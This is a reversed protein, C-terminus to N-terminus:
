TLHRNHYHSYIALHLELKEKKKTTCWTKRFLRNINARLMACTHNLSFLPDFATKKLEGQGVIAGRKGKVTKHRVHPFHRKVMSPYRPCQDSTLLADPHIVSQMRTFLKGLGEQRLDARPGYKIRAKAAHIGKPPMVAVEFGLVKRDPHTVMLSVSLPKYKTHEFTELEDFQANKIQLDDAEYVKRDAENELACISALFVLKRSVTTRHINLVIAARRQSIGSSLLRYLQFNVRRKHQRFCPDFTAQSFSKRCAFCQWRKVSRSDSKRYFTGKRCM